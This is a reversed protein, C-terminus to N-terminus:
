EVALVSCESCNIIWRFELTGIAMPYIWNKESLDPHAINREDFRVKIIFIKPGSGFRRCFSFFIKAVLPQVGATGAWIFM